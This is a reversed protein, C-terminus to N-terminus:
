ENKTEGDEANGIAFNEARSSLSLVMGYNSSHELIIRKKKPRNISNIYNISHQM